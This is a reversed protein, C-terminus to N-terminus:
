PIKMFRFDCKASGSAITGSRILKLGALESTMFDIECLISSYQSTNHKTFLKCIGCEIIDIGYGLGYTTEKDTIINVVFGDPHLNKKSINNIYRLLVQIPLRSILKAPLTKFYVHLANKPRVVERAIDLCVTRITQYPEKREDLTKILALFYASVDLRKDMPQQSHQAFMIDASIERYHINIQHIMAEYDLPYAARIVQDFVHVYQKM